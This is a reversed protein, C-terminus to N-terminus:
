GAARSHVGSGRFIAVANRDGDHHLFDTAGHATALVQLVAFDYRQGYEGVGPNTRRPTVRGVLSPHHSLNHVPGSIIVTSRAAAKTREMEGVRSRFHSLISVMIVYDAEPIPDSLVNFFRTPM